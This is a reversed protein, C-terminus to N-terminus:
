DVAGGRKSRKPPQGIVQANSLKTIEYEYADALVEISGIEFRIEFHTKTGDKYYVNKARQREALQV